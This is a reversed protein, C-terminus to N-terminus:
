PIPESIRSESNVHDNPVLSAPDFGEPGLSPLGSAMQLGFLLISARRASIHGAALAKLISDLTKRIGRDDLRAPIEIRSERPRGPGKPRQARAHFYCFASGRMAPSKCHKGSPMIHRCEQYKYM